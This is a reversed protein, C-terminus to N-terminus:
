SKPRRWDYLKKLNLAWVKLPLSVGDRSHDRWIKSGCFENVYNLQQKIGSIQPTAQKSATIVVTTAISDM